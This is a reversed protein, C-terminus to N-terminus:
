WESSNGSQTVRVKLVYNTAAEKSLRALCAGGTVLPAMRLAGAEMANMAVVRVRGDRTDGKM